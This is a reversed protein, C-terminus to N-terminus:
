GSLKFLLKIKSLLTFESILLQVLIRDPKAQAACCGCDLHLPLEISAYAQLNVFVLAREAFLVISDCYEESLASNLLIGFVRSLIRRM